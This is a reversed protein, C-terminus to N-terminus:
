SFAAYNLGCGLSGSGGGWFGFTDAPVVTTARGSAVQIDVPVQQGFSSEAILERLRREAEEMIKAALAGMNEGILERIPALADLGVAHLVTYSAGTARAILFGREVADISSASLDIAALINKLM